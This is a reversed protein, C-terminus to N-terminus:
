AKVHTVVSLWGARLCNETKEVVVAMQLKNRGKEDLARERERQGEKVGRSQVVWSM